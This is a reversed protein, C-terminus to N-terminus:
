FNAFKLYLSLYYIIKSKLALFDRNCTGLEKWQLVFLFVTHLLHTLSSGLLVTNAFDSPLSFKTQLSYHALVQKAKM